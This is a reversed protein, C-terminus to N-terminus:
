GCSHGCKVEEILFDVYTNFNACCKVAKFNQHNHYNNLEALSVVQAVSTDRDIEFELLMFFSRVHPALGSSM